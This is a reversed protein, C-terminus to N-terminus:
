ADVSSCIPSRQHIWGLFRLKHSNTLIPSLESSISLRDGLLSNRGESIMEENATIGGPIRTPRRRISMASVNSTDTPIAPCILVREEITATTKANNMPKNLTLNSCLDSNIIPRNNMAIEAKHQENAEFKPKICAHMHATPFYGQLSRHGRLWSKEKGSLLDLWFAAYSSCHLIAGSISARMCFPPTAPSMVVTMCTQGIGQLQLLVHAHDHNM